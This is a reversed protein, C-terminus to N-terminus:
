CLIVDYFMAFVDRFSSVFNFNTEAELKLTFPFHINQM